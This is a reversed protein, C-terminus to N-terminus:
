IDRQRITDTLQNIRSFKAPKRSDALQPQDRKDIRSGMMRAPLMAQPNIPQSQQVAAAKSAVVTKCFHDFHGNRFEKQNGCQEM